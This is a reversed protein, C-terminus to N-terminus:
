GTLGWEQLLFFLRNRSRNERNGFTSYIDFVVKCLDPAEYPEIFMDMDIARVPGGSGMKGGLYVNFGLKGDREALYLCIDNFMANISDTRSGLVAVNLKRPMDTYKKKGLFVNTIERTLRLTDILSDEALGTLPDGTVNRINDMGTQLTTLGVNQLAELIEPLNELEIWRVQLQQRSTIEVEGRCFKESIHAVVKAQEYTLRGNPVRVKGYLLGPYSEQLLYRVM